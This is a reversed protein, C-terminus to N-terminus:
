GQQGLDGGPHEFRAPDGNREGAGQRAYPQHEPLGVPDVEFPVGHV